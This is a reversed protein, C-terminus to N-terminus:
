PNIAYDFKATPTVIFWNVLEGQHYRHTAIYGFGELENANLMEIPNEDSVHM